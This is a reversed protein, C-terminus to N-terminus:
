DTARHRRASQAWPRQPDDAVLTLGLLIGLSIGVMSTITTVIAGSAATGGDGLLRSVGELGLAGPVLIWFGPLFTVLPAPGTPQRAALVAVPTMAVAGFFASLASGFFLGGIVQGAYAVYLVLLIWRTASRRAGNFLAVGVGFVAVGVWPGLAALTGDDHGRLDGAPLGVLQGGAVIGLALLVLQLAGSALRSAGAVIQGTALELVAITLLAGPLFTILPAVLLPFTVLDDVVRSTAFVSVSVATAAILPVFPQYSRSLRRTSLRFSGIVVGLVGAFLFELWGARLIAALGITSCTYGVLAIWAPYPSASARIEALRRRGDVADITGAEAHAVLTLLDDIQDLRLQTQGAASVETKVDGGAPLSVILATPLVLVGVNDIGNVRAITRLTSEVHNVADGADILSEGLDLLFDLTATDVSPGRHAASSVPPGADGVPRPPPRDSPRAGPTRSGPRRAMVYSALGVGALVLVALVISGLPIESTRVQPPVARRPPAEDQELEVDDDPVTEPTTTSPPTTSTTTSTTTDTDTTDTGTTDGPSGGAVTATPVSEDPPAAVVAVSPTTLAAATAIGTLTLACVVVVPGIRAMTHVTDAGM